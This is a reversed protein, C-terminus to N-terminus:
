EAELADLLATLLDPSHVLTPAIGDNINLIVLYVGFPKKLEMGRELVMMTAAAILCLRNDDTDTLTVHAARNAQKMLEPNKLARELLTSDTM